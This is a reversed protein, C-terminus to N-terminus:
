DNKLVFVPIITRHIWNWNEGIKQPIVPKINLVNQVSDNPGYDGNINNEFPLSILKAVPNQSQKALENNGAALVSQSIFALLVAVLASGILKYAPFLKMM